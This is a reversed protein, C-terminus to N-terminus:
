IISTKIQSFFIEKNKHHFKKEIEIYIYDPINKKNLWENAFIKKINELYFFNVDNIDPCIVKSNKLSSINLHILSSTMEKIDAKDFYYYYWKKTKFFHNYKKELFTSFFFYKKKGGLMNPSKYINNIHDIKNSM